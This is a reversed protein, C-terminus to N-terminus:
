GMVFIRKVGYEKMADVIIRYANVFLPEKTASSFPNMWSLIEHMPPGLLSVIADPRQAVAERLAAADSISGGPLVTVRSDSRLEEPIKNPSRAYVLVEVNHSLAYKITEIGSPGTAGFLLIKKPAM